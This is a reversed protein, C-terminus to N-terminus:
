RAGMVVVPTAMFAHDEGNFTGTGVIIGADNIASAHSLVWGAGSATTQANLDFMRHRNYVFATCAPDGCTDGIVWGRKNIDYAEGQRNFGPLTNLLTATGDAWIVPWNYDQGDENDHVRKAGVAEAHDNIGYARSSYVDPALATTM